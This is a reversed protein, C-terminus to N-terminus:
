FLYYAEVADPHIEISKKLDRIAAENDGNNLKALGSEIYVAATKEEKMVKINNNINWHVVTTKIETWPM